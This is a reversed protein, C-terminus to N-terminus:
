AEEYYWQVYNFAAERAEEDIEEPTADDEVEFEFQTESGQADTQITGKFKRM